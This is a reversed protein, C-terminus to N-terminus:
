AKGEELAAVAKKIRKQRTEPTRAADIPGVILQKRSYSLGDFSITAAPDKAFIAAIEEPVNVERPADDLAIEVNLVDGAAVGAAERVDANVGVMFKGDMVAVASRYTYSNITVSVLPRKNGGLRDIVEAPVEIGTATKGALLVETRFRESM